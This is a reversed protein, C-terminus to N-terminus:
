RGGNRRLIEEKSVPVGDLRREFLDRHNLDPPGSHTSIGMVPISRVVAFCRSKQLSGVGTHTAGDVKRMFKMPHESIFVCWHLIADFRDTSTEGDTVPIQSLGFRQKVISPSSDYIRGFECYFM